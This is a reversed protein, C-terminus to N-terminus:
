FEMVTYTKIGEGDLELPIIFKNGVLKELGQIIKSLHFVSNDMGILYMETNGFVFGAQRNSNMITIFNDSAGVKAAGLALYNSANGDGKLAGRIAVDDDFNFGKTMGAGKATDLRPFYTLAPTYPSTTDKRYAWAMYEAKSNLNFSLGNMADNTLWHSASISGMDEGNYQDLINMGTSNLSLVGQGAGIKIGTGDITVFKSVANWASQVFNTTDGVLNSVDLNIIHVNAADLIGATIKSADITDIMTSKIVANDIVTQGTIRVKDGQILVGETSANIRSVIEGKKVMLDIQGNTVSLDTQTAFDLVCPSWVKGTGETLMIDGVYLACIKSNTTGNNDFRIYGSVMNGTNFTYAVRRDRDSDYHANAVINIVVSNGSADNGILFADSSVVNQSNFVDFSLTYDTNPKVQINEGRFTKETALVNSLMFLNRSSNFFFSHKTVSLRGTPEKWFDLTKPDGSNRLLNTGALALNNVDDQISNISVQFSDSAINIQNNVWSQTDDITSYNLKLSDATAKISAANAQIDGKVKLIDATFGDASAIWQNKATNLDGNLEDVSSASAKGEIAKANVKISNEATGIRGSLLDVDAQKATLELADSNGKIALENTKVRQDLTDIDSKSAVLDFKGNITDIDNKIGIISNNATTASALADSANQQANAVDSLAQGVSNAADQSTQKAINAAELAQASNDNASNIKDAYDAMEQMAADVKDRIEHTDKTSVILVWTVGDWQYMETDEGNPKYWLDGVHNAVPTDPGRFVTSKGDAGTQAISKAKDAKDNANSAIQEVQSLKDGLTASIDGLELSDYSDLLVNWVVRSIKATTDIGLKAFRIPVEDCLDLAELPAYDAYNSTKSLDIFSVKISVKPIGVKNTKIYSQALSKLKAQVQAVSMYVTTKDDSGDGKTPNTGVKVNEFQSAFDVPLVKQNPYRDRYDSDVVLGDVTYVKTSDSNVVESLSAYPYISTYTELINNEQEFSLLNRGYSLLTNSVTGRHSLLSIHLNDFRYEGGWTDLISGEVGGLAQRANTVKDITWSTGNHTEIDSDVTFQKPTTLGDNWMTLAQEASMDQMTINPKIALDNALYSVHEAHVTIITNGSNDMSPTVTKIIFRQDKLKHGADVKIIRNNEIEGARRGNLPYTLDLVFEGNREETVVATLADPLTGLGNSFFDTADAAYLVPYSM